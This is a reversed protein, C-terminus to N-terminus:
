DIRTVEFSGDPQIVALMSGNYFRLIEDNLESEWLLVFDFPNGDNPDVLKDPHMTLGDLSRWGGGHRYNDNIQEKAPRKDNDDLFMPIYGLMEQTALPHRQIWIM